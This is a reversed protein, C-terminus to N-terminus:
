TIAFVTVAAKYDFLHARETRKALCVIGKWICASASVRRESEGHTHFTQGYNIANNAKQMEDNQSSCVFPRPPPHSHVTTRSSTYGCQFRTGHLTLAKTFLYVLPLKDTQKMLVWNSIALASSLRQNSQPKQEARSLEKWICENWNAGVTKIGKRRWKFGVVRICQISKPMSIIMKRRFFPFSTTAIFPSCCLDVFPIFCFYLTSRSLFIYPYLVFVFLAIYMELGFSMAEICFYCSNFILFCCFDSSIM